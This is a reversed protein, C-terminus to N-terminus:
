SITQALGTKQNSKRHNKAFIKDSLTEGEGLVTIWKPLCISLLYFPLLVLYWIFMVEFIFRSNNGRQIYRKRYEEKLSFHPIYIHFPVPHQIFMKVMMRLLFNMAVLVTMGERELDYATRIYTQRYWKDKIPRPVSKREEKSLHQVGTNDYKIESMELDVFQPYQRALTSKGTGPFAFIFM